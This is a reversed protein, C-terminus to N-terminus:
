GVDPELCTTQTLSVFFYDENLESAFPRLSQMLIPLPQQFNTKITSPEALLM